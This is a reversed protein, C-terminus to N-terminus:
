PSLPLLEAREEVVQEIAARSFLLPEYEVNRWPELLDAYHPSGPHGSQGPPLVFLSRDWEGVDFLQRYSALAFTAEFERWVNCGAQNPTDEDGGAPFPGRSLNLLRELLPSAAGLPHRWPVQHLAGWRWRGPDPGFAEGLYAVTSEFADRLVQRGYGNAEARPQLRQLHGLLISSGKFHFASSPVLLQDLSRGQLYELHITDLDEFLRELLEQRFVRYIAAAASEARMSGDWAGVLELARRATEDEPELAHLYGTIERGPLSVLDGQIAALDELDHLGREELLQM